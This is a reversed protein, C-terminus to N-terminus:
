AETESTGATTMMTETLAKRVSDIKCPKALFGAAGAKYCEEKYNQLAHATVFIVKPRNELGSARIVKCAELGDMVPM